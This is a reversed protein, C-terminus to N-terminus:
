DYKYQSIVFLRPINYLSFLVALEDSTLHTVGPNVDIGGYLLHARDASHQLGLAHGVEHRIIKEFVHKNAATYSTRFTIVGKIPLKLDSTREKVSYNDAYLDSDYDVRVGVDPPSDVINFLDIGMLLEYEDLVGIITEAYDLDNKVFPKVYFDFPLEWTRLINGYINNFTDSMHRFFQLFDDYIQTVLNINPLLWLYLTDNHQVTYPFHIDFYAGYELSNEEDIVFVIGTFIPLADFAFWGNADTTAREMGIHLQIGEIPEGTASNGVFGYLEKGKVRARHAESLPSLNSFEDVARVAVYVSDAPNLDQIVMEQIEGPLAPPPEGPRDSARQWTYEDVIPTKSTRLQYYSPLGEMSDEGVAIWQIFLEGPIVGTELTVIEVPAPPITDPYDTVRVLWQVWSYKEGDTAYATIETEGIRAALFSYHRSTSVVSDAIKYFYSVPLNEPDEALLRFDLQHDIIIVPNLDPPEHSRIVPPLNEPQLRELQWIVELPIGGDTAVGRVTVLGTDLVVYIWTNSNSVVSDGMEFYHQLEGGDPDTASINFRLTDGLFTKIDRSSPQYAKLIPPRDFHSPDTL